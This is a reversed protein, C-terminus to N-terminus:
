VFNYSCAVNGLTLTCPANVELDTSKYVRGAHVLGNLGLVQIGIRDGHRTLILHNRSLTKDM